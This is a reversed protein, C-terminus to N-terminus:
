SLSIVYTEKDGKRTGEGKGGRKGSKGGEERHVVSERERESLM